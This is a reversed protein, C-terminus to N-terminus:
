SSIRGAPETCHVGSLLALVSGQITSNQGLSSLSTHSLLSGHPLYFPSFAVFLSLFVRTLIALPGRLVEATVPFKMDM